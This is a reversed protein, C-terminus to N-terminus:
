THQELTFNNPHEASTCPPQEGYSNRGLLAKSRHATITRQFYKM